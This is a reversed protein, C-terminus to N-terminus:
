VYQIVDGARIITKKTRDRPNRRSVVPKDQKASAVNNKDGEAVPQLETEEEAVMPEEEEDDDSNESEMTVPAPLATNKDDEDEDDEEDLLREVVVDRIADLYFVEEFAVGQSKEEDAAWKEVGLM